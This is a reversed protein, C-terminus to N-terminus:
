ADIIKLEPADTDVGSYSYMGFYIPNKLIYDIKSNSFDLNYRKYIEMSIQRLTKKEARLRHIRRVTEAEPEHIELTKNKPNDPDIKIRYGFPPRGGCNTKGSSIKATRGGTTRDRIRELEFEAFAIVMAEMVAALPGLASFDEAANASLLEVNKKKLLMKFYFYQNIDRSLRDSKAVIITKIKEAGPPDGSYLLKNLEIREEKAGSFVDTPWKVIEYGNAAAYKEIAARQAELGFADEKSQAATSVRLYGYAKKLNSEM